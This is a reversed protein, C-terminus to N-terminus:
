ATPEGPAFYATGTAFVGVMVAGKAGAMGGIDTTEFRVNCVANYGKSQAETLLRVITERRARSLLSEYSRLEGGFIKRISALFTKLYDTAIVAQGMVLEGGRSPDAAPPFTKVDTLFMHALKEERSALRRLHGREATRGAIWGLVLLFIPFALNLLISILEGM